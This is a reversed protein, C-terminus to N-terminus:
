AIRWTPTRVYQVTIPVPGGAQPSRTDPAEDLAGNLHMIELNVRFHLTEGFQSILNLLSSM